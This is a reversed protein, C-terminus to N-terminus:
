PPNPSCVTCQFVLWSVHGQVAEMLQRHFIDQSPLVPFRPFAQPMLPTVATKTNECIILLDQFLRDYFSVISSLISLQSIERRLFKESQHPAHFDLFATPPFPIDPIDPHLDISLCQILCGYDSSFCKNYLFCFSSDFYFKINRFIPNRKNM